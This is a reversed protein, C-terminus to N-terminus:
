TGVRKVWDLPEYTSVFGDRFIVKGSESRVVRQVKVSRGDVGQEWRVMGPGLDPDYIVRPNKKGYAPKRINYFSGASVHVERGTKGVIAVTLASGQVWSRILLTKGTDNRFKFDIVGWAVTADRGIPYHSIYLSHERREVIPLGAYLVANFLTTAYQCIGGGVGQRLVGDAAIVPAFDFGRNVTRPGMVDNLSFVSGPEVLTNDVLKAALAINGARSSNQPDFYTTFQAGLSALGMRRVDDSTLQPLAPMTTVVVKRTGSRLAADDLDELLYQMNLVEGDKSETVVIGGSRGVIITADVPPREAWSLLARLKAKARSNRFTLPYADADEGTNVTLMDSIQSPSLLVSRSGHRLTIPQALYITALGAREEAVATSVAATLATMPLPGKYAAGTEAAAALRASLAAADIGLGDRSPSVAVGWGPRLKLRADRAPVDVAARLPELGEELYAADVALRPAVNPDGGPLWVRLGFPLEHRGSSLAAAATGGADLTIGLQALHTPVTREADLVFQATSIRPWLEKQLKEAAEQQSLGGVDIGAVTVGRAIEGRLSLQWVTFALGVALMAVAIAIAWVHRRPWSM